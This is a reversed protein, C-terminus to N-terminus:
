RGAASVEDVAALVQEVEALANPWHPAFRLVGDPSACSVGRAGLAAAWGPAGRDDPVMVGLIGSQRARDECRLSRFGRARLGAELADLYTSVHEFIAEVGLQEILAVSAELGALGVTAPAGVELFSAAARIPKDYRLLGAGALLFDVPQEHSLWGAFTPRLAGVRSPHVYLFATGEPGMLWKHGGCALYDCSAAADVPLAGVAQIGDVCLEAGHAHCLARLEALPARLGTQFQVLSIAM